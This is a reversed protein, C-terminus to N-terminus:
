ALPVPENMAFERFTLAGDGLMPEETHEQLRSCCPTRGFDFATSPPSPGPRRSSGGCAIPIPRTALLSSRSPSSAASGATARAIFRAWAEPAWRLSSRTPGSGAGGRGVDYSFDPLITPRLAIVTSDLPSDTMPPVRGARPRHDGGLDAPERGPWPFPAGRPDGRVGRLGPERAVGDLLTPRLRLGRPEGARHLGPPAARM